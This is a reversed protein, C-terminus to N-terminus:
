SSILKQERWQEFSLQESNQLENYKSMDFRSRQQCKAEKLQTSIPSVSNLDSIDVPLVEEVIKSGSKDHQQDELKCEFNDDKVQSFELPLDEFSIESFCSGRMTNVFKHRLPPIVDPEIKSQVPELM